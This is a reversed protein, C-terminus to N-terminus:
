KKESCVNCSTENIMSNIPKFKNQCIVYANLLIVGDLVNHNKQEETLKSKEIEIMNSEDLTKQPNEISQRNQM